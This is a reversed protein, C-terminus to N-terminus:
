QKNIKKKKKKAVQRIERAFCTLIKVIRRVASVIDCEGLCASYTSNM